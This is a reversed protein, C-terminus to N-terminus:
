HRKYPTIGRQSKNIFDLMAQVKQSESKELVALMDTLTISSKLVRAARKLAQIDSSDVGARKLGIINLGRAHAPSGETITYPLCDRTIRASAGVMALEGVRSFQHITVAGSIFASNDIEVHGGLLAGNAMIVNNGVICDHAVHSYAMFYNNDGICTAKGETNSRHATVGERFINNSGIELYSERDRYKFDQPTGGIVAQEYVQNGRGMHVYPKIVVHSAIHCDDGIVVGQEIVTYAGVSVNEGLQATPHLIATPHINDTMMCIGM